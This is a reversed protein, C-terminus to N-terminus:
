NSARVRRRAAVLGFLGLGILAFTGPEAVLSVNDIFGGLTNEKGFAQFGLTMSESTAIVVQQIQVWNNNQLSKKSSVSLLADTSEGWYVNIGNDDDGNNTRPLYWFSLDYPTGIVLDEVIQVMYSNSGNNSAQGRTFNHSDLEVYQTGEQAKVGSVTGNKQIEIGAGDIAAWGSIADFVKWKGGFQTDEFSGNVILNASAQGAFALSAALLSSTLLKSFNM